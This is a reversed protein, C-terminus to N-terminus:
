GRALVAILKEGDADDNYVHPTVRLSRGRVSVFVNDAALKETLGEPVNDPFSLSLFHAARIDLSAASLGIAQAADAIIQTKAALTAAVRDPTWELLMDIAAAGAMLAPTNSREGMDFRRAGPQYDDRYNVLQSFDESGAKNIWGHEIPYGDHYKCAAYLFGLTYPGMLWKYCACVMFDPQVAKIDFPMAGLSQTLDLVLAAGVARCAEGIAILDLLHGDAWHCNPVAVIATEDGIAALVADTWAAGDDRQVTIVEAGTESARERWVYLNSPFQDALVIIQQGRRLPLNRAAIAMGYSVSPIIAINDADSGCIQAARSRFTEAYSFFDALRYTWPQQKRAAGKAFAAAISHSLPSMYACNLYHVNRPMDFLHRQNPILDM